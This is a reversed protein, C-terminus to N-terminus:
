LVGCDEENMAGAMKAEKIKRLYEMWRYAQMNMAQFTGGGSRGRSTGRKLGWEFTVKGTFIGGLM